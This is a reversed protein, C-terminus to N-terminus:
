SQEPSSFFRFLFEEDKPSLDFMKSAKEIMDFIPGCDEPEYQKKDSIWKIAKRVDESEPMMNM